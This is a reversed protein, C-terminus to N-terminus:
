KEPCPCYWGWTHQMQYCPHRRFLPRKSPGECRGLGANTQAGERVVRRDGHDIGGAVRESGNGGDEEVRLGHTKLTSTQGWLLNMSEAIMDLEENTGAHVIRLGENQQRVRLGDHRDAHSEHGGFDHFVYWTGSQFTPQSTERM